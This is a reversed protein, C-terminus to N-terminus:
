TLSNMIYKDIFLTKLGNEEDRSCFPPLFILYFFFGMKMQFVWGEKGKGHNMGKEISKQQNSHSTIRRQRLEKTFTLTDVFRSVTNLMSDTESRSLPPAFM